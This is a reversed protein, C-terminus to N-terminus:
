RKEMYFRLNKNPLQECRVKFTAKSYYGNTEGYETDPDFLDMTKPHFGRVHTPDQWLFEADYGPTQIYLEGGPKLIRHCEEIFAIVSPRLDATYNDMHELVDVARIETASGDEFPYPFDMLNHVVDIGPLDLIDVNVFGSTPDNGAGLNIKVYADGREERIQQISKERISPLTQYIEAVGEHDIQPFVTGLMQLLRNHYTAHEKVFEHGADRIREREDQHAPDVYYDILQRLQEFNGYEYFVITERATFEEELGKIYPHILFGGRGITEYVRDSWYHEHDFGICVSDGVVVKASAYLDNLDQNRMVRQPHGYKGFRSTLSQPTVSGPYNDMLWQVLQRRYPWEPHMYEIGGGVFTVDHALAPRYTGYDCELKCVGPKMYYHNIGHAKFVTASRPDGDPTFVYKTRWFPDRQLGEARQLGVYLDLHYSVTPIGLEELQSLHDLTVLNGWTRTFLFLDHDRCLYILNAAETDNEQIRSVTHGMNELTAAIHVETCHAQTFNGVYAIKM